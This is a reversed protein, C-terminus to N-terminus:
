GQKRGYEKKLLSRREEHLREGKSLLAFTGTLEKGFRYGEVASVKQSAKWGVIVASKENTQCAGRTKFGKASAGITSGGQDKRRWRFEGKKDKYIETTYKAM